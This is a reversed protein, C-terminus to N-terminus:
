ECGRQPRHPASRSPRSLRCSVSYLVSGEPTACMTRECSTANASPRAFNEPVGETCFYEDMYVFARGAQM